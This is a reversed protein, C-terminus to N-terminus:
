AMHQQRRDDAPRQKGAAALGSRIRRHERAALTSRREVRARDVPHDLARGLTGPDIWRDRRV